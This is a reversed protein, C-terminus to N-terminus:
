KMKCGYTVDTGPLAEWNGGKAICSMKVQLNLKDSNQQCSSIQMVIIILAMFAGTMIISWARNDGNM